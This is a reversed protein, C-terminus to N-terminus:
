VLAKALALRSREPALEYERLEVLFDVRAADTERATFDQSTM